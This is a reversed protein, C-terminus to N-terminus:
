PAGVHSEEILFMAPQAIRYGAKVRASKRCPRGAALEPVRRQDGAHRSMINVMGALDLKELAELRGRGSLPDPLLGPASREGCCSLSAWTTPTTTPSLSRRAFSRRATAM